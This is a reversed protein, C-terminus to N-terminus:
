KCTRCLTADGDLLWTEYVQMQQVGGITGALVASQTILCWSHGDPMSFSEPSSTGDCWVGDEGGEPPSVQTAPVPNVAPEPNWADVKVTLTVQEGEPKLLEFNSGDFTASFIATECTGDDLNTITVRTGAPGVTTSGGCALSSGWAASVGDSAVAAGPSTGTAAVPTVEFRIVHGADAEVLTYTESTAGAIASGDRLWRFTSAGEADSEADTYDYDGTLEQGINPTGSITVNSAVPAANCTRQISTTLFHSSQYIPAGGDVANERLQRFTTSSINGAYATASWKVSDATTNCAPPTTVHVGIDVAAFQNTNVPDLGTVRVVNTAPRSITYGANPNTQVATKSTSVISFDAPVTVDFSSFNSNGPTRNYLKATLVTSAAGSQVPGSKLNTGWVVSDCGAGTTTNCGAPLNNPWIELSFIKEPVPKAANGPIGTLVLIVVAFLTGLVARSTRTAGSTM